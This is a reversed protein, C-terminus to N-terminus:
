AAPAEAYYNKYQHGYHRSYYYKNRQFDVKNLVACVLRPHSSMVTEVAREALRWRTMEAGIVFTVAAVLPAVIVADTVALVPPTDVVVWDFPGGELGSVLARMRDSALLESPNAPTRGATIVLLNPDHTRQVVERMRAQGALLQSLGRDNTLRLAKHVSPRRMDADVLLVRSGGVALAMAMNVATTTKGELPQASTVAMIRTGQAPLQAVLATRLSRFAEGFDHPVPGTLLPHQDGRVSPVLGLFRLKLRRTIDEPTKVTDDLYDIGFATAVGVAMGFLLAYIWDSRHNPTFPGGPADARDVVRVNNTRSNAVVRLEKERQLLQNYIQRNSEAERQLVTYDVGKRSLVTAAGKQRELEQALTREQAAAVEYDSKATQVAKRLEADLQKQANELQGTVKQYDPHREGYRESVRAKERQLDNVQTKLNQLFPSAVVSMIQDSDQGAASVQNWIGEKQIRETRAKTAADNLQTLRAVVINQNDALAGADQRERYDALKLESAQVLAQQRGVEAALWDLSNELVKVKLELNESVYEEAYANVARAAFAPDAADFALDVLQSGRVQNVSLRGILQDAHAGGGAAAPPSSQEGGFVLRIPWAAYAKVAAIGRALPTPRPGQGNFEPVADLALKAAVRRALDRGRIIRLQTQMYVEPDQVVVNQAIESPTGLSATNENEIQIRGTARYMPVTTYSDVMMWTVVALCAALAPRRHKYLVSLRDLLHVEGGHSPAHVHDHGSTPKPTPTAPISM